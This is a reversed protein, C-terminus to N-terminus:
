YFIRISRIAPYVGASGFAYESPIYFKSIEDVLMSQIAIEWGPIVESPKQGIKFDFIKDNGTESNMLNVESIDNDYSSYAISGDSRFIKFTIEVVDNLGPFKDKLQSRSPQIITKKIGNNTFLDYNSSYSAIEVRHKSYLNSHPILSKNLTILHTFSFIIAQQKLYLM